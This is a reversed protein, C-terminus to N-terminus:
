ADDFFMKPMNRPPWGELKMNLRLNHKELADKIEILSKKGLNPTKLLDNETRQVLDGICLISEGKLCNISRVTLDLDEVSRQMVPDIHEAGDTYADEIEEPANIFVGIQDKLIHAANRIALGPNITGNTEMDIILKDLDTRDEVRTQEVRFAVRRIPSFSADVMLVGIEQDENTESRQDAPMYGRGQQVKMRMGLRGSKNLTAIVLDKNVIELVDEQCQIDAATVTGPGEKELTMFSVGESSFMKIALSRINLIIDLVDEQCGEITSYEHQIGEIQVETVAVGPISSLLIRRLANGLTHGFGRELPELIIKAQVDSSSEIQVMKPTLLKIASDM